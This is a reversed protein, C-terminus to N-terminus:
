EELAYFATSVELMLEANLQHGGMSSAMSAAIQLLSPQAVVVQRYCQSSGHLLLVQRGTQMTTAAKSARRVRDRGCSDCIPCGRKDAGSAADPVHLGEMYVTSSARLRETGSRKWAHRVPRSSEHM